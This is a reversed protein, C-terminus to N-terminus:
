IKSCNLKGIKKENKEKKLFIKMMKFYNIQRTCIFYNYNCDKNKKIKM